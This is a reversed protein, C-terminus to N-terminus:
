LSQASAFSLSFDQHGVHWHSLCGCVQDIKQRIALELRKVGAVGVKGLSSIYAQHLVSYHTYGEKAERPSM